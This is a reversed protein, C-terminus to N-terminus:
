SRPLWPLASDRYLEVTGAGLLGIVRIETRRALETLAARRQIESGETALIALRRVLYDMRARWLELSTALPLRQRAVLDAMAVFDSGEGRLWTAFLDDGLVGRIEEQLRQRAAEREWLATPTVELSLAFRDDFDRQRRFVERRQAETASTEGLRRQVARGTLSDFLEQDELERATLVTALDARKERELLALQRLFGNLGGPFDRGAAAYDAAVKMQLQEYDRRIKDVRNAKENSLWLAAAAYDAPSTEGKGREGPASPPEPRPPRTEVLPPPPVNRPALWYGLAAFAAAVAAVLSRRWVASKVRAEERAAPPVCDLDGRRDGSSGAGPPGLRPHAEHSHLRCEPRRWALAQKAVEMGRRVEATAM